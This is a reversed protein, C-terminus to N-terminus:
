ARALSTFEVYFIANVLNRRGLKTPRGRKGTRSPPKQPTCRLNPIWVRDHESAKVTGYRTFSDKIGFLLGVGPGLAQMWLLLSLAQQLWEACYDDDLVCSASITIPRDCNHEAVFEIRRRAMDKPIYLGPNEVRHEIIVTPLREAADCTQLLSPDRLLGVFPSRLSVDPLVAIVFTYRRFLGSFRSTDLQDIVFTYRKRWVSYLFSLSISSARINRYPVLLSHHGDARCTM